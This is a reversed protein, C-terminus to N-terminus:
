GHNPITKESNKDFGPEYVSFFSISSTKVHHENLDVWEEGKLRAIVGQIDDSIINLSEGGAFHIRISSDSM